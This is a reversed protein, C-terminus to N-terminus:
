GAVPRDLDARVIVEELGVRREGELALPGVAHAEVDRGAGRDAELGPLRALDLEYRNGPQAPDEAEVAGDHAREVRALGLASRLRVISTTLRSSLNRRMPSGQDGLIM